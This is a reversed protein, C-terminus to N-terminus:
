LWSALVIAPSPEGGMVAFFGRLIMQSTSSAPFLAFVLSIMCNTVFDKIIIARAKELVFFKRVTSVKIIAGPFRLLSRGPFGQTVVPGAAWSECVAM